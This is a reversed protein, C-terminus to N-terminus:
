DPCLKMGSSRLPWPREPIRAALDPYFLDSAAAAKIGRTAQMAAYEPFLKLAQLPVGAVVEALFIKLKRCAHDIAGVTADVETATGSALRDLGREIEDTFPVVADLGVMQIAGAAQHVHAQAHRLPARDKPAAHFQTLADLGRVLAQDIEPLVWSLPGVDFDTSGESV